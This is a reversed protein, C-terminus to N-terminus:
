HILFLYIILHTFIYYSQIEACIRYPGYQNIGGVALGQLTFHVPVTPPFFLLVAIGGFVTEPLMGQVMYFTHFSGDPGYYFPRGYFGFINHTDTYIRGSRGRNGDVL